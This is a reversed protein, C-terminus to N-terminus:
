WKNFPNKALNSNNYRRDGTVETGIWDPLSPHQGESSLEIEAITLGQNDGFFEDVEIVFGKYPIKYRTKRIVGPLCLDLLMFAEDVPIEKEWEFRSLGSANTAGKITIFGKPGYVRVRVTRVGDAVLYGQCIEEQSTALHKFPSIVLYKREIETYNM